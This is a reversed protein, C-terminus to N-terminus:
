KTPPSHYTQAPLTPLNVMWLHHIQKSNKKAFSTRLECFAWVACRHTAQFNAFQKHHNNAEREPFIYIFTSM